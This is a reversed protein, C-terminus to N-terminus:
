KRFAGTVDYGLECLLFIITGINSCSIRKNIDHQVLFPNWDAGLYLSFKDSIFGVYSNTRIIELGDIIYQKNEFKANSFIVHLHEDTIDKWQKLAPTVIEGPVWQSREGSTIRVSGDEMDVDDIQGVISLGEQLVMASGGQYHKLFHKRELKEMDVVM